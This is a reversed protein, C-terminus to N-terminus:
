AVSSIRRRARWGAFLGTGLLVMSAPEPTPIPTGYLNAHSLSQQGSIMWSGSLDDASLSFV